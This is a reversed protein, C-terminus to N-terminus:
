VAIVVSPMELEAELDFKAIRGRQIYDRINHPTKGVAAAAEELTLLDKPRPSPAENNELQPTPTSM